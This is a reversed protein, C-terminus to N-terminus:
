LGAMYKFVTATIMGAGIFVITAVVSRVSLRAVGCIGHGSTCGSGLVTGYGVLLGALILVIPSRLTTNVFFNPSIQRLMFGGLILGALFAGRWLHEGFKFNLFTNLIGSIGTVRGNFILFIATAAGIFVGGILALLIAQNM